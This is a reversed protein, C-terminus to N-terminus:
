YDSEHSLRRLNIRVNNKITNIIQQIEKTNNAHADPIKWILLEKGYKKNDEFFSPPVDDAVLVIMNQWKLLATSLGQPSGSIDIGQEKCVQQQLPDLSSGKIIGASKAQVNPNKNIQNFYIEAIRSRFRNYKCIFLINTKEKM